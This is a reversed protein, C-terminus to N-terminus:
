PRQRSAMEILTGVRPPHQLLPQSEDEAYETVPQRAAFEGNRRQTTRQETRLRRRQEVAERPALAGNRQQEIAQQPRHRLAALTCAYM